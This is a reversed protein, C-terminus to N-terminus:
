SCRIWGFSGSRYLYTHTNCHYYLRDLKIKNGHYYFASPVNMLILEELQDEDECRLIGIRVLEICLIRMALLQMDSWLIGPRLESLM